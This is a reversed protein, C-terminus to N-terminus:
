DIYLVTRFGHETEEFVEKPPGDVIRVDDDRMIARKIARKLVARTYMHSRKRARVVLADHARAYNRIIRARVRASELSAIRERELRQRWPIHGGSRMRCTQKVRAM